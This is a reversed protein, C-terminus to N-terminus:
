FYVGDHCELGPKCGALHLLVTFICMSRIVLRHGFNGFILLFIPFPMFIKRSTEPELGNM